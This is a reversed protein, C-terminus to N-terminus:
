SSAKAMNGLRLPLGASWYEEVTKKMQQAAEGDVLVGSTQADKGYTFFAARDAVCVIACTARANIHLNGALHTLQYLFSAGMTENGSIAPLVSSIPSFTRNEHRNMEDFIAVMAERPIAGCILVPGANECLLAMAKQTAEEGHFFQTNM